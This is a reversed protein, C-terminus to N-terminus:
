LAATRHRLQAGARRLTGSGAPVGRLCDTAASHAGLDDVTSDLARRLDRRRTQMVLQARGKSLYDNWLKRVVIPLERYGKERRSHGLCAIRVSDSSSKPPTPLLFLPHVPYPLTHFPAVDLYEYQASLKADHLVFSHSTSARAGACAPDRAHVRPAPTTRRLRSGPRRLHGPSVASALPHSPIRPRAGYSCRWAMWTSKLLPLSSCM